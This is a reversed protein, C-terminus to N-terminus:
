HNKENSLILKQFFANVSEAYESADAKEGFIKQWTGPSIRNVEALEAGAEKVAALEADYGGPLSGRASAPILIEGANEWFSNRCTAAFHSKIVDFNDTEALGCTSILLAQPKKQKLPEHRCHGDRDLTIYPSYRSIGRDLVTKMQASFGDAYVPSALIILDAEQMEENVQAMDDSIACVGPTKLWCTYCGTCYAIKMRHPYFICSKVPSFGDLFAKLFRDTLSKKGTGGARPSGCIAAVRRRNVM